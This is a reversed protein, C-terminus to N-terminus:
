VALGAGEAAALDFALLCHTDMLELDAGSHLVWLVATILLLRLLHAPWAPAPVPVGLTQPLLSSTVPKQPALSM